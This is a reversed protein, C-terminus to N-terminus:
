RSTYNIGPQLYVVAGQFHVQELTKAAPGYIKAVKEDAQTPDIQALWLAVPCTKSEPLPRLTDADLIEFRDPNGGYYGYIRKSFGIENENAPDGTWGAVVPITADACGPTSTIFNGAERWGDYELAIFRPSFFAIVASLILSATITAIRAPQSMMDFAAKLGIAAFLSAPALTWAFNRAQYMPAMVSILIIAAFMIITAGLMIFAPINQRPRKIMQYLGFGAAIILIPNLTLAILMTRTMAIRLGWFSLSGGFIHDGFEEAEGVTSSPHLLIWGIGLGSLALGLAIFLGAYAFRREILSWLTLGGLVLGSFAIAFWHGLPLFVFAVALLAVYAPTIKELRRTQFDIATVCACISAAIMFGYMRADQLYWLFGFSTLVLVLWLSTETKDSQRRIFLGTMLMAFAYPVLNFARLIFESHANFLGMWQRVTYFYVPLHVDGSITEMADANSTTPLALAATFLEDWWLSRSGLNILTWVFALAAAAFGILLVPDNRRLYQM